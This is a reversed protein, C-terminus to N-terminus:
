IFHNTALFIVVSAKKKKKKKLSEKYDKPLTVLIKERIEKELLNVSNKWKHDTIKLKMSALM